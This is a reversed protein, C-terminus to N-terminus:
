QAEQHQEQQTDHGPLAECPRLAAREHRHERAAHEADAAVYREGEPKRHAADGDDDHELLRVLATVTSMARGEAIRAEAQMLPKSDHEDDPHEREGSETTGYDALCSSSPTPRLADPACRSSIWSSTAVMVGTIKSHISARWQAAAQNGEIFLAVRTYGTLRFTKIMMSLWSRIESLVARSINIPKGGSAGAVEFTADAAFLERM